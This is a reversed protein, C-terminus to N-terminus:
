KKQGSLQSILENTLSDFHHFAIKVYCQSQLHKVLGEDLGKSFTQTHFDAHSYM